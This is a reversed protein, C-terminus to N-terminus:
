QCQPLVEVVEGMGKTKGQRFILPTGERIFEPHTLFEMTVTAWVLQEVAQEANDIAVVRVTQRISGIYVTGMFGICLHKVCHSLLFLNATFISNVKHYSSDKFPGILTTQGEHLRGESLLGCVVVGVHPVTFIEEVTFLPENDALQLRTDSTGATSLVNLFCRFPRMGEGSVSSLSLVPIIGSESLVRAANIADRKNKIKKTSMKMGARALLKRVNEYVLELQTKDVLDKKTIVVFFPINLAALLGLHERTVATTGTEASILLCSFHPRYASLGHITTKLYKADGALDILTVLKTSKEVVEELTNDAYNVLKGRSDFGIVDLCVSSTKGTRVEHPFRFLNLRTKGNGDDLCGQTMVGCLTSKGVNCGGLVALRLEIFQQSEPVKRVLVEAVTRRQSAGKPSVEREALITLSADLSKAMTQLTALSMELDSDTLGTLAGDDEVGLEYIAEGQGERLRWKMQTILHQLRAPNTNTLRAKYEINGLDNEAPLYKAGQDFDSGVKQMPFADARGTSYLPAANNEDCFHSIMFDM